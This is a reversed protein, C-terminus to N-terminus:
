GAVLIRECRPCQVLTAAERVKQTMNTPLSVHCGECTGRKVMAVARGAKVPRLQEYLGLMNAPTGDARLAREQDLQGMEEEARARESTLRQQDARWDAELHELEAAAELVTANAAEIIELGSLAEDDLASRHKKLSEVEIQLDTLEKPNHISGGYLKTELPRIKADLDAVQAELERQQRQLTTAQHRADELEERAAILEETEGLRSDIDAILARLADRKLDVEQLAFLDAASTM